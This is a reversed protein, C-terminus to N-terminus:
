SADDGSEAFRDLFAAFDAATDEPHLTKAANCIAGSLDAIIAAYQDLAADPIPCGGLVDHMQVRMQETKMTM